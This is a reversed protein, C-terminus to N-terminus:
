PYGMLSAKESRFEEDSLVGQNHLAALRELDDLRAHEGNQAVVTVDKRDDRRVWARFARLGDGHEADPFERATQRRLVEIGLVLLGAILVVPLVNRFAPTPGWALVILYLVTVPGYILSMRDRMVPALEQRVAMAPRTDGALWATFVIFLGYVIGSVAISYLLSTGIMWADHAAPKVSETHVLGDVIQNGAVRRVLLAAV